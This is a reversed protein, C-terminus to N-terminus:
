DIGAHTRQPINTPQPKVALLKELDVQKKFDISCNYYNHWYNLYYYYINFINVVFNIIIIIIM